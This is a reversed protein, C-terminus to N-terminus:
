EISTFLRKQNEILPASLHLIGPFANKKTFKMCNEKHLAQGAQHATEM